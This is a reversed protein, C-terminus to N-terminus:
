AAGGRVLGLAQMFDLRDVVDWHEKLRGDEIRWIDVSRITVPKGTPEVGLFRGRHTGTITVRAAVRDGEAVMDEVAVKLDPFARRLSAVMKKVPARGNGLHNHQIYDEAMVADFEAEDGTEMAQLVRRVLAKGDTM